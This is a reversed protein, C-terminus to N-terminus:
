LKKGDTSSIVQPIVWNDILQKASWSGSHIQSVFHAGQEGIQNLRKRDQALEILLTAISEPTAEVIPLALGTLDEVLQRVEPLIHGLVPKKMSMAECAAVGYSGLRFQDLVVDAKEIIGPMDRSSVGSIPTYEIIGARDLEFLSDEILQTGKMIQVSPIHVVKLPGDEIPPHVSPSWINQDVVVPCWLARPLDLLLDPTSVFIPEAISNLFALNKEAVKRLRDWYITSDRYPSWKTRSAHVHPVRVDTGHAIYALKLGSNIFFDHELDLSRGFYRGLLAEEAEVLVHTFSSLAESQLKQWKRSKHYFAPPIVLDSPFDFGGPVELAFTATSIDSRTDRLAKAWLTGQNSYNVPGIVIRIRNDDTFSVGPIPGRPNYRVAALRGLPSMPNEAIDDLLKNVWRPWSNRTAFFKDLRGHAM